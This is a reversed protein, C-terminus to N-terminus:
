MLGSPRKSCVRVKELKLKLEKSSARKGVLLEGLGASSLYNKIICIGMNPPVRNVAM